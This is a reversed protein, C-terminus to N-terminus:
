TKAKVSKTASVLSELSAATLSSRMGNTLTGVQRNDVGCYDPLIADHGALAV